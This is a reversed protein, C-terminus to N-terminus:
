ARASGQSLPVTTARLLSAQRRYRRRRTMLMGAVLGLFALAAMVYIDERLYWAVGRGAHFPPILFFCVTGAVAWWGGKAPRDEGCVLWVLAPVIWVYHHAWSIPSVLLGTAACVLVALMASSRKYAVAALAVGGCVVISLILDTLASPLPVHTRHLAALLTQNAIGQDNGIRNVAFADKSFYVWSATPAVAFLVLTAGVFSLLANRAAKWQRSALLYAIFVLPTLKIAAALGVLVGTPMKKARWSWGITLDTVILLTLVVNIQGLNLNYRVPWLFFGIPAALLLALQWDSRALPRRRAAALSVAILTILAIIDVVDWLIQAAHASLLSFPSFLLAALPPYTFALHQGLVKIESSYLDGRLVHQGGARYVLFDMQPFRSLWLCYYAVVSAAGAIGVGWLLPSHRSFWDSSIPTRHDEPRGPLPAEARGRDLLGTTGVNPNDVDILRAVHSWLGM